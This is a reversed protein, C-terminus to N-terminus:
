LNRRGRDVAKAIMSSIQGESRRFQQMDTGQPMQFIVTTGGGSMQNFLRQTRGATSIRSAGAMGDKEILEAGREGAVFSKWPPVVGGVARGGGFLARFISSFVSGIGGSGGSVGSFSNFILDSVSKQLSSSVSQILTKNLDGIFDKFTLKGTEALKEFANGFVRALNDASDRLPDVINEKITEGAGRAAEGVKATEKSIRKLANEVARDKIAEFAEGVYDRGFAKDLEEQLIMGVEQSAESVQFKFGSLDITNIEGFIEGLGLFGAGQNVLKTLENIQQSVTNVMVETARIVANVTIAIIDGMVAPLKGWTKTVANFAFVFSGIIGNITVKVANGLWQLIPTFFTIISQVPGQLWSMVAESALQFTAKVTDGFTVQVGSAETIGKSLLFFGGVITGVVAAVPALRLGLKAVDAFIAKLGGQGAYLDNIQTGQQILATFPSGGARIQIGLDTLNRGLNIAQMRAIGTSRGFQDLSNAGVSLARGSGVVARDISQGVKAWDNSISDTASRTQQVGRQMEETFGSLDARIAVSMKELLTGLAM